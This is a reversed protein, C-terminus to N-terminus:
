DMTKSSHLLSTASEWSFDFVFTSSNFESILFNFAIIPLNKKVDIVLNKHFSRNGTFCSVRIRVSSVFFLSCSFINILLPIISLLLPWLSKSGSSTQHRHGLVDFYENVLWSMVDWWNIIIKEDLINILQTLDAVQGISM